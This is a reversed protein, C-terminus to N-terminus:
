VHDLDGGSLYWRSIDLLADEDIGAGNVRAGFSFSTRLRRPVPFFGAALFVRRLPDARGAFSILASAGASDADQVLQRLITSAARRHGPAAVLEMIYGATGTRWPAFGLVGFAVRRGSEEIAYRRYSFPSDCYRWDLYRGDRMVATGESPRTAQWLEDAWPSFRDVEVLAGSGGSRGAAAIIAALPRALRLAGSAQAVSRLPCVLLPFPRLETWGLRSYFVPASRVNPFGYVIPADRAADEYAADALSRFIGQREFDPDTATHLSLLGTVVAGRHWLRRPSLAYQGALRDGADAVFYHFRDAAPNRLFLWEWLEPTPPHGEGAFARGLLSLAADRDTDNARRITWRANM